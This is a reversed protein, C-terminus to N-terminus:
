PKSMVYILAYFDNQSFLSLEPVVCPFGNNFIFAGILFYEGNKGRCM